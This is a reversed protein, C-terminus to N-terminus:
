IESKVNCDECLASLVLLIICTFQDFITVCLGKSTSTSEFDNRCMVHLTWCFRHAQKLDSINSNTNVDTVDVNM